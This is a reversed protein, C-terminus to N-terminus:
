QWGNPRNRGNRTTRQLAAELQDLSQEVAELQRNDLRRGGFRVGYFADVVRMPVQAVRQAAPGSESLWARVSEAFERQTQGPRRSLRARRMLKELRRYFDVESRRRACARQWRALWGRALTRFRRGLRWLVILAATAAMGLLGAQWSFWKGSTFFNWIQRGMGRWFEPRSLNEAAAIAARLAPEYVNEQQRRHDMGMVYSSWVFQLYDTFQRLTPFNFWSAFSTTGASAQPTPDLVVWAGAAWKSKERDIEPPLSRPALYAEVWAHAHLQRVQYFGGLPNWEGGRYGVVMRAPIGQSRLMMTLASAFYECHGERHQELFDVVPDGRGSWEPRDLTYRFRGSDTFYRELAEIRAYPDTTALGAFARQAESQLADRASEPIMTLMAMLDPYRELETGAPMMRTPRGDEFGSTLLSFTFQTNRRHPERLLTHRYRDFRLGTGSVVGRIPYVCFLVNTYFPEIIIDERVFGRSASYAIADMPQLAYSNSYPEQQWTGNRYRTLVYGRLYPDELLTYPEETDADFFRVRMVGESNELLPGSQGLKVEPTAGIQSTGALTGIPAEITEDRPARPIAVFVVAAFAITCAALGILRTVMPLLWVRPKTESEPQPLVVSELALPWKKGPRSAREAEALEHILTERRRREAHLFALSLCGLAVALYVLLTLGFILESNLAAAVAVLQLNILQLLGYTRRTKHQYLLVVQLYLLLNAIALLQREEGVRNWDWLALLLAVGAALNTARGRLRLWGTMDAFYVSSAALIMAVVSVAASQHGMGFMGAALVSEAAIGIQLWREIKSNKSPNAEVDSHHSQDHATDGTVSAKHPDANSGRRLKFSGSKEQQSIV